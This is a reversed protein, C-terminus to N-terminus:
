EDAVDDPEDPEVCKYADCVHLTVLTSLSILAQGAVVPLWHLHPPFVRLGDLTHM